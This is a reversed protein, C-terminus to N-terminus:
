IAKDGNGDLDYSKALMYLVEDNGERDPYQSLSLEYDSIAKAYDPLFADNQDDEAQQAKEDQLVLELNAKRVGAAALVSEDEVHELLGDYASILEETAVPTIDSSSSVHIPILDGLTNTVGEFQDREKNPVCATLVGLCFLCFFRLLLSNLHRM